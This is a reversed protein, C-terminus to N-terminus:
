DVSLEALQRRTEVMDAAFRGVLDDALFQEIKRGLAPVPVRIDFNMDLRAGPPHDQLAMDAKITAPARDIRIDLQGECAGRWWTDRRTMAIWNGTIKRVFGPIQLNPPELLHVEISFCDGDDECNLVEIDRAGLNEYKRQFYERSTFLELVTEPPAHLDSCDQYKMITVYM